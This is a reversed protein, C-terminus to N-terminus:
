DIAINYRRGLALEVKRREEETLLRNYLVVEAIEGTWRRSLGPIAGAIFLDSTANIGMSFVFPKTCDTGFESTFRGNIHFPLTDFYCYDLRAQDQVTLFPYWDTSTSTNRWGMAGCYEAFKDTPKGKIGYRGVFVVTKVTMSKNAALVRIYKTLEPWPATYEIVDQFSFRIGPRGNIADKKYLPAGVNGILDADTWGWTSKLVQSGDAYTLDNNNGSNDKWILVKDEDRQMIGFDARTWLVMGDMVPLHNNVAEVHGDVFTAVMRNSHRLDFDAYSYAVNDYTPPTTSTAAHQGDATLLTVDPSPLEGLAMSSVDNSYVYANAVKKGKTPCMLINRDVNIEPWVSSSDPLTEDHDQAWMLIAVAIQRQNNLCSSQRAKERAKAFVPFLIAALIAIIAIVVLLEILTFGM